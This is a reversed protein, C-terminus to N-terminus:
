KSQCLPLKWWLTTPESSLLHIKLWRLLLLAKLRRKGLGHAELLLLLLLGAPAARGEELGWLKSLRRALRKLLLGGLLLELLGGRESM